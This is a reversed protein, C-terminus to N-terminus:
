RSSTSSSARQQLPRNFVQADYIQFYFDSEPDADVLKIIDSKNSVVKFLDPHEKTYSDIMRRISLPVTKKM